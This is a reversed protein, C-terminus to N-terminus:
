LSLLVFYVQKNKIGLMAIKPWLWLAILSLLVFYVQKNKIGLMAIKPTVLAAACNLQIATLCFLCRPVVSATAIM